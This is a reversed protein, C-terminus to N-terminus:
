LASLNEGTRNKAADCQVPNVRTFVIRDPQCQNPAAPSAATRRAVGKRRRGPWGLEDRHGVYELVLLCPRMFSKTFLEAFFDVHRWVPTEESEICIAFCDVAQARSIHHDLGGMRGESGHVDLVRDFLTHIDEHLFRKRRVRAAGPSYELDSLRCLILIEFDPAPEHAPM